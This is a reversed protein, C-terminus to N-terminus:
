LDFEGETGWSGLWDVVKEHSVFNAQGSNAKGLSKKIAKTQWSQNALYCEIAEAALFSKTRCTADSLTELQDRVKPSIRISLTVAPCSHSTNNM